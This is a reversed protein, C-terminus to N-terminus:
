HEQILLPFTRLSIRSRSCLLSLEKLLTPWRSTTESRIQTARLEQLRARHSPTIVLVLTCVLVLDIHLFPDLPQLPVAHRAVRSTGSFPPHMSPAHWAFLKHLGNDLHKILVVGVVVGVYSSSGKEYRFPARHGVPRCALPKQHFNSIWPFNLPYM